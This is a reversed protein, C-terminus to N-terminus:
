NRYRAAVDSWLRQMDELGRTWLERLKVWGTRATILLYDANQPYRLITYRAMVLSQCFRCAVLFYVARREDETLPQVSEYGALVHGGAEMAEGSEVMMYMIAMALDYVHYGFMMSNLDVIGSVRHRPAGEASKPGQQQGQQQQGQQQESGAAVEQVLINDDNFDGHIIGAGPSPPHESGAQGGPLVPQWGGAGQVAARRAPVHAAARQVGERRRRLRHERAVHDERQRQGGGGAHPLGEGAPVEDHGDAGRAAAAAPQGAHQHGQARVPSRRAGARPLEPRHLEGAPEGGGREGRLPAGGAEGRPVRRPVAERPRPWQGAARSADNVVGAAAAVAWTDALEGRSKNAFTVGKGGGGGGDDDHGVGLSLNEKGM